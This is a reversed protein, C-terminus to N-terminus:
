QIHATVTGVAVSPRDGPSHDGTGLRSGAGPNGRPVRRLTGHLALARPVWKTVARDAIRESSEESLAGFLPVRRLVQRTLDRTM